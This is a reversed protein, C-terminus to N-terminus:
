EASRDEEGPKYDVRVELYGEDEEGRLPFPRYDLEQHGYSLIEAASIPIRVVVEPAIIRARDKGLRVVIKKVLLGM